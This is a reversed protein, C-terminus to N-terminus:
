VSIHCFITSTLLIQLTPNKKLDYDMLHFFSKLTNVRTVPSGVLYKDMQFM